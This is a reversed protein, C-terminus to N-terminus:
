VERIDLNVFSILNELEEGNFHKIGGNGNISYASIETKNFDNEVFADICEKSHSTIFVQVRYKDALREILETFKTLLSKHIGNEVEDLLIVGGECAAIKIALFFVKQLGDGYHSLELNKEPDEHTVFFTNDSSLLQIDIIKNDINEKIFDVVDKKAGNKVSKTFAYKFTMEDDNSSPSCLISNCLVNNTNSTISLGKRTFTANFSYADDDLHAISNFSGIYDYINVLDSQTTKHGEIKVNSDEFVASIEVKEILHEYHANSSEKSYNSINKNRFNDIKVLSQPDSLKTLIYIAELISSKGSNNLGAFINVSKLNSVTTNSFKKYKIIHIESFHTVAEPILPYRDLIDITDSDPNKNKTVLLAQLRNISDKVVELNDGTIMSSFNFAVNTQEKIMKLSNDLKNKGLSESSLMAESLSRTADLNELASPDDILKALERIQLATNIVPEKTVKLYKDEELDDDLVDEEVSSIWSFLRELNTSSANDLDFNFNSLGLWKIIKSSKIIEKFVSYREPLFQDGYDSKSYLDLLALTRLTSRLEPRGIGISSCVEDESLNEETILSYILKAQNIAPWKKNGSIHKLGMLIKHKASSETSYLAVPVAKFIAPDLKGISYNNEHEQALLKLAAVRRNGEIVIIKKDDIRRVQIQDVPLFGNQKFSEVLDKIDENRNGAVFSFTRLQIANDTYQAEPVEVYAAKDKFRYNNPDLYLSSIAYTTRLHEKEPINM